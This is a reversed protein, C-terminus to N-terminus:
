TILNYFVGGKLRRKKSAFSRLTPKRNSDWFVESFFCFKKSKEAYFLTKKLFYM